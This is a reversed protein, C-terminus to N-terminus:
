RRSEQTVSVPRVAFWSVVLLVVAVVALFLAFDWGAFRSGILYVIAFAPMAILANRARSMRLWADCDENECAFGSPPAWILALGPPVATGCEPCRPGRM